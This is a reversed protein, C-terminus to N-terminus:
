KKKKIKYWKKITIEKKVKTNNKTSIQKKEM